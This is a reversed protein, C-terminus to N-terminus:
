DTARVAVCFVLSLILVAIFFVLVLDSTRVRVPVEFGTLVAREIIENAVVGDLVNPM